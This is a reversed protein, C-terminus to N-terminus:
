RYIYIYVQHYWYAPLLLASGEGVHVSRVRAYRFLAHRALDPESVSALPFNSITKPAAARDPGFEGPATRALPSMHQICPYPTLGCLPRPDVLTFTKTGALQLLISDDTDYHLQLREPYLFACTTHTYLYVYYVYIYM